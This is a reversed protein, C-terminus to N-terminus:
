EQKTTDITGDNNWYTWDNNKNGNIYTGKAKLQGNEYYETWEGEAKDSTRIGTKEPTGDKHFWTSLGNFEDGRSEGKFATQQGPFFEYTFGERKDDKFPLLGAVGFNDDRFYVQTGNKKGDTYPTIELIRGLSDYGIEYSTNKADITRYITTKPQGNGYTDKVTVRNDRNSCSFFLITLTILTGTTKKMAQRNTNKIDTRQTLTAALTKCM